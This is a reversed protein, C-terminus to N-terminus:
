PSNTLTINFVITGDRLGEEVFHAHGYIEVADLNGLTSSFPLDFNNQIIVASFKEALKTWIKVYRSFEADLKENVSEVNDNIAPLNILNVFSTFILVVDPQFNDLEANGFVADEYFKGYESVYFTPKIGAHLLFIELVNRLDDVTSGGLIAIKKEVYTINERAM